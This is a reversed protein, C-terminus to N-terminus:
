IVVAKRRSFLLAIAGLLGASMLAFAIYAGRTVTMYDAYPSNSSPTWVSFVWQLNANFRDLQVFTIVIGAAWTASCLAWTARYWSFPMLFHVMACILPVILAPIYGLRLSETLTGSLAPSGTTRTAIFAWDAHSAWQALFYIVLGIGAFLQLELMRQQFASSPSFGPLTKEEPQVPGSEVAPASPRAAPPRKMTKM